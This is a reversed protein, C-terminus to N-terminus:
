CDTVATRFIPKLLNPLISSSPALFDQECAAGLSRDWGRDAWAAGQHAAEPPSNSFFCGGAGHVFGSQKRDRHCVTHWRETVEPAIVFRLCCCLWVSITKLHRSLTCQAAGAVCLWAARAM